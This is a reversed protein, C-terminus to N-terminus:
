INTGDGVTWGHRALETLRKRLYVLFFPWRGLINHLSLNILPGPMSPTQSVPFSHSEQLDRYFECYYNPYLHPSTAEQFRPYQCRSQSGSHEASDKRSGKSMTGGVKPRKELM